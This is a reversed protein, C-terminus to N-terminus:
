VVSKRDRLTLRICKKSMADVTAIYPDATVDGTLDWYLHQELLMAPPDPDMPSESVGEVTDLVKDDAKKASFKYPEPEELFYGSKVFRRAQHMPMWIIETKRSLDEIDRPGTGYPVVLDTARVNRVVNM